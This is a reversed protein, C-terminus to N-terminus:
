KGMTKLRLSEGANPKVGVGASRRKVHFLKVRGADWKLKKTM